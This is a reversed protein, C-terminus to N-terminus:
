GLDRPRVLSDLHGRGPALDAWEGTVTITALSGSPLGGDLRRLAEPDGDAALAHALEDLGPNHGVLLVAGADAPVTHVVEILTRVDAEYVRPEFRVLPQGRVGARVRKWTERTRAATSCLVVDVETRSDRLHRRLATTARRGRAALPRDHDGLAPDDWSSKAHRLLLLTRTMSEM